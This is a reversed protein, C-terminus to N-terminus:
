GDIEMNDDEEDSEDEDENENESVDDFGNGRWIDKVINNRVKHMAGKRKKEFMGSDTTGQINLDYQVIPIGLTHMRIFNHLTFTSVIISMQYKHSMQPMVKLVKWRKKLQGFACEVKMRLSSHRYNFHELMGEPPRHKFEPVHCRANAKKDCIPSLYGITNPYGSDVLYYKGKPPHPFGYKSNTLADRWVTVDHASGEWGVHIFTFIRDFSCSALVNWTKGGHRNRFPVGNEDSVIAEIHTGDM